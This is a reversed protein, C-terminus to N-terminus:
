TWTNSQLNIHFYHRYGSYKEKPWLNKPTIISLVSFYSSRSSQTTIQNRWRRRMLFCILQSVLQSIYISLIYRSCYMNTIEFAIWLVVHQIVEWPLPKRVLKCRTWKLLFFINKKKSVMNLVRLISAFSFPWRGIIVANFFFSFVLKHNYILSGAGM